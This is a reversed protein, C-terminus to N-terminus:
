ARLSAIRRRERATERAAQKREGSLSGLRNSPDEPFPSALASHVDSRTLGIDRLMHEDFELLRGISRRNKVANWVAAVRAASAEVLSTLKEGFTASPVHTLETTAM